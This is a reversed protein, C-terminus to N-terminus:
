GGETKLADMVDKMFNCQEFREEAIASICGDFRLCRLPDGAPGTEGAVQMHESYHKGMYGRVLREHQPKDVVRVWDGVKIPNSDRM